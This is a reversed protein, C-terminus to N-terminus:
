GSLPASRTFAGEFYLPELGDAWYELAQRNPQTTERETRRGAGGTVPVFTIWGIWEGDTRAEGYIHAMYASGGTTLVRAADERILEAAAGGGAPSIRWRRELERRYVHLQEGAEELGELLSDLMGQVTPDPDLGRLRSLAATLAHLASVADASAAQIQLPDEM